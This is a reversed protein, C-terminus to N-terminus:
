LFSTPLVTQFSCLLSVNSPQGPFYEACGGWDRGGEEETAPRKAAVESAPVENPVLVVKLAAPRLELAGPGKAPETHLGGSGEPDGLFNAFEPPADRVQEPVDFSQLPEEVVINAASERGSGSCVFPCM